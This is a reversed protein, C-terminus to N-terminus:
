RFWHPCNLHSNNKFNNRKINSITKVSIYPWGKGNPIVLLVVRKELKSNYSSVYLPYKKEKKAYLINLATKRNNKEFNKWNAKRSHQNAGKLNYKDIVPKIKTNKKKIKVLKKM